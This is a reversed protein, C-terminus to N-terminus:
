GNVEEEIQAEEVEEQLKTKEYMKVFPYYIFADVVILALVFVAAKWDLTSIMAGIPAPATWPANIVAMKIIGSATLLWGLITNVTPVIMFPIIMIPNLFIPLGFILPENINFLSPIIAIRGVEKMQKSKSRLLLFALALTAGGGGLATYFSWFPGTYIHTPALGQAYLEANATTNILELPDLIPGVVTTPHVGFGFLLNEFATLTSVMFLNDVSAKVNEFMSFFLDPILQGTTLQCILSVGYLVIMAFGFPFLAAFSNAVVPPVGKPMHITWGRNEVFKMIEVSLLAVIISLLIGKNEFASTLIAGDTVPSCVLIYIAVSSLSYNIAKKDYSKALSYAAAFCIFLSMIGMTANFPALLYASNANAWHYWGLLLNDLIGIGTLNDPSVPPCALILFISGIITLPIASVIGDRMALLHRQSGFFNALPMLKEELWDFFKQM